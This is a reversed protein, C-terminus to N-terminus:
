SIKEYSEDFLTEKELTSKKGNPLFSTKQSPLWGQSKWKLIGSKWNKSPSSGNKWGNSEWHHFMSEGDSEPLGIELAFSKLEEITGRCKPKESDLSVIGGQPGPPKTNPKSKTNGEHEDERGSRKQEPPPNGCIAPLQPCNDASQLPIIPSPQLSGFDPMWEVCEGPMQLFKARSTRLRQGYNAIALLHRGDAQYLVILGRDALQTIWPAIESVKIEENLPFCSAKILRLDGHFRGYDDAKMILRTFLREGEASLGDMRLSDTWDRIM